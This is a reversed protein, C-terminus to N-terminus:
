LNVESLLCDPVHLRVVFPAGALHLSELVRDLCRGGSRPIAIYLKGGRGRRRILAAFASLQARTHATDIDDVTKAECLALDRRDTSLGWADPRFPGVKSSPRLQNWLGGQPMRGDCATPLFGDRKMKRIAWLLLWQHETSTM